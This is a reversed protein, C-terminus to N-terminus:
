TPSGAHQLALPAIGIGAVVGRGPLVAGCTCLLLLMPLMLPAYCGILLLATLLLLVGVFNPYSGTGCM